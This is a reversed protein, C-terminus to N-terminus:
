TGSSHQKSKPLFTILDNFLLYVMSVAVLSLYYCKIEKVLDSQIKSKCRTASCLVTRHTRQTRSSREDTAKGSCFVFLLMGLNFVSLLYFVLMQAVYSCPKMM